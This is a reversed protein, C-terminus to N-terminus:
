RETNITELVALTAHLANLKNAYLVLKDGETLVIKGMAINAADYAPITFGSILFVSTQLAASSVIATVTQYQDTINAIQTTLIIAARQYPAQYVAPTVDQTSLPITLNKFLNLPVTAM